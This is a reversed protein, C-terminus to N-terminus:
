EPFSYFYLIFLRYSLMNAALSLTSDIAYIVIQSCLNAGNLVGGAIVGSVNDLGSVVVGVPNDRRQVLHFSGSLLLLNISESSFILAQLKGSRLGALVGKDGSILFCLCSFQNTSDSRSGNRSIYNRVRVTTATISVATIAIAATALLHNEPRIGHNFHRPM